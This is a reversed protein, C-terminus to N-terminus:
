KTVAKKTENAVKKVTSGILAGGQKLEKQISKWHTKLEKALQEVETTDINSLKAYKSMVTDVVSHYVQENIDKLKEVKELVEGKAKVVWGKISKVKKKAQARVEPNNYLLYGGIIAAAALGGLVAAGVHKKAPKQSANAKTASSTKSTTNKQAM